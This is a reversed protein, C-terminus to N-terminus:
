PQSHLERHRKRQYIGQNAENIQKRLARREDSTMRARRVARKSGESTSAVQHPSHRKYVTDNAPMLFRRQRPQPAATPVNQYNRTMRQQTARQQAIVTRDAWQREEGRAEPPPTQAFVEGLGLLFLLCILIRKLFTMHVFHYIFDPSAVLRAFQGKSTYDADHEVM